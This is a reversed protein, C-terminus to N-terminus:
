RCACSSAGSRWASNSIAAESRRRSSATVLPGSQHQRQAQFQAVEHGPALEIGQAELADVEGTQAAGVAGALGGQQVGDAPRQPAPRPAAASLFEHAFAALLHADLEIELLLPLDVANQPLTSATLAAFARQREERLVRLTVEVADALRGHASGLPADRLQQSEVKLGEDIGGPQLLTAGVGEGGQRGGPALLQQGANEVERLPPIVLLGGFRPKGPQLRLEGQQCRAARFDLLAQRQLVPQLGRQLLSLRRMLLRLLFQGGGLLGGADALVHWVVQAM